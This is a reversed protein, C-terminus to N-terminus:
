KYIIVAVLAIFVLTEIKHDTWYHMIKNIIKKFMNEEQKHECNNCGCGNGSQCIENCHCDHDCTICIM